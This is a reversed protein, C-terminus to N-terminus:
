ALLHRVVLSWLLLSAPMYTAIVLQVARKKQMIIALGGLLLYHVELILYYWPNFLQGRVATQLIDMLVAAIFIWLWTKRHNEFDELGPPYTAVSLSFFAMAWLILVLFTEFTWVAHDKWLYLVWWNLILVTLTMVTYGLHIYGIGGHYLRQIAGTLVHALALGFIISIFVSIFEFENM